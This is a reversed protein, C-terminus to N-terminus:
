AWAPSQRLRYKSYASEITLLKDILAKSESNKGARLKVLALGHLFFPGDYTDKKLPVLEESAETAEAIAKEHEGVGSLALAYALRVGANKPSSIASEELQARAAEWYPKAEGPRGAQTLIEGLLMDRTFYLTEGEVSTFASDKLLNS